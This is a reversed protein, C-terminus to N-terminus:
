DKKIGKGQILSAWDCQFLFIRFRDFYNLEIIDILVGDYTDEIVVPDGGRPHPYHTTKATMFVGSNQTRQDKEHSKTRFTIGNIVYGKYRTAVRNPGQSLYRIDETIESRDM